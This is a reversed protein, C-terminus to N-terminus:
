EKEATLLWDFEGHLIKWRENTIHALMAARAADNNVIDEVEWFRMLIQLTGAEDEIVYGIADKVRIHWGPPLLAKAMRRVAEVTNHIEIWLDGLDKGHLDNDDIWDVVDMELEESGKAKRLAKHIAFKAM